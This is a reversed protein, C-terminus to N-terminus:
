RIVRAEGGRGAFEAFEEAEKEYGKKGMLAFTFVKGTQVAPQDYPNINLLGGAITTAAEWLM